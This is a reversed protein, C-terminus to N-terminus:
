PKYILEQAPFTAYGGYKANADIAPQMLAATLTEAYRVRAMAAITALSIKTYKALIEGSRTQNKNAWVATQQIVGSFRRVVDAHDNAWQPAAFFVGLLFHKGIGDYAYGLIRGRKRADVLFPEAIFAADIRGAALATAMAPFPMEVFKLTSADGGNSDVWARPAVASLSVAAITRGNLDKARKVPSDTPVVIAAIGRTAPSDYEAAPAVVVLPVNKQHASALTELTAYGLDIAGSSVAASTFGTNQMPEIDADIGAQAFYGLEKAYYVEASIETASVGIRLVAPAQASAALPAAGVLTLAQARTVM